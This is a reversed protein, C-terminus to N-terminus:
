KQARIEVRRIKGSITKPLATVFEVVRPYKYPATHVKVYTQIEKVLEKTGEFGSALVISAKVLQGREGTEDPVGTVACEMVCAMEMLVSEIEFPGIRYGSSKILDDTRGVYWLYGDEDRWAMDGTHYVDDHWAETTKEPNLYYGDFLGIPAGNATSICIEGVEGDTAITGDATMLVVDYEPSPKGLSGVRPNTGVLNACTLTTETQGFGEMLKIGTAAFFQQFVEPNLAEGATTAYKLSSLDYKSLDEKIFFRFITPPACFTTINYKKFMPLLDQPHFREFDCTFVAAELLWQGYLKGWVAKGWGTDSVAFHLGDEQVNHWWKATIIHGLPYSFNHEAIKPYGATGSTFYMLMPDTSITQVRELTDSALEIGEDFNSWGEIKGNVISKMTVTPCSPLAEEVMGSVEGFATCVVANVKATNFRYVLDKVVLQDTAPIAVAGLKHLAVMAFWFQYHRRLVLLVRDGKKIGMERFYNATKNSYKAMDAFTFSRDAGKSDVWKMALKNPKKAAIVDVCDYGFNFTEYNKFSIAELLGHEDLKETVYNAYVRSDTKDSIAVDEEVVATPAIEHSEAQGKIVVSLFKCDKGGLAVMGHKKHGDYMVSDGANLVSIHNDIQVKLQGEIVYDFEQGGHESLPVEGFALSDSYKATVLFPEALRDKLLYALHTYDFGERRNIEMGVGGRTLTFSELKPNDGSVITSLDVGLKIACKYLFTFNPDTVGEEADIYEQLSVGTAEAMEECSVKLEKRLGKLREATNLTTNTM